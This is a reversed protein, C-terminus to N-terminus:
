PASFLLFPSASLEIYEELACGWHGLTRRYAGGGLPGRVKGNFRWSWCLSNSSEPEFGYCARVEEEQAWSIFWTLALRSSGVEQGNNLHGPIVAVEKKIWKSKSFCGCTLALKMVWSSWLFRYLECKTSYLIYTFCSLKKQCPGYIVRFPLELIIM